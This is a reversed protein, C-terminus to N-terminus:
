IFRTISPTFDTVRRYRLKLASKVRAPYLTTRQSPLPPTPIESTSSPTVLRLLSRLEVKALPVTRGFLGLRTDGKRSPLECEHASELYSLYISWSTWLLISRGCRRSSPIAM